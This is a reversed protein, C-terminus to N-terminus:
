STRSRKRPGGEGGHTRKRSPGAERSMRPPPGGVQPRRKKEKQSVKKQKKEIAKRVAGRGGESALAEYKARLLLAKKDSDKMYWAKKGQQRKEREEKAVKSLAELQVKEQRDRNVMSEARKVARELRQVEAEREERLDRPSNALLKRARKLNEKLTKLEQEHMEALFGYQTHFRKRDFEGTIPLFRPDRPPPKSETTLKMRPVPRKSSMETPAHKNKRKPIEKKPRPEERGKGKDSRAGSTSMSEAESEPEYDSSGGEDSEDDSEVKALAKQAKRLAGFPLTKLSEELRKHDVEEGEEEEDSESNSAEDSLADLEEEDVWQAVRPADPEADMEEFEEASNESGSQSADSEEPSSESHQSGSGSSESDSVEEEEFHKRSPKRSVSKGHASAATVSSKSAAAAIHSPVRRTAPRPRRPM